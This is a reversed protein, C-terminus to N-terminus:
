YDEPIRHYIDFTDSNGTYSVNIRRSSVKWAQAINDSLMGWQSPVGNKVITLETLKGGLM